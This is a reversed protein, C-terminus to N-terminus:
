IKLAPKSNGMRAAPHICQHSPEPEAQFGLRATFYWKYKTNKTETGVTPILNQICCDCYLLLTTCHINFHLGSALHLLQAYQTSSM